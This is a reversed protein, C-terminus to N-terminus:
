RSRYIVEQHPGPRPISAIAAAIGGMVAGVGAGVQVREGASMSNQDAAHAAGACGIAFGIGFLVGGAIAARKLRSGPKVLDIRSVAGRPILRESSDVKLSVSDGNLQVFEGDIVVGNKM